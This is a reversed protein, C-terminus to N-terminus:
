NNPDSNLPSAMRRRLADSRAGPGAITTAGMTIIKGGYGGANLFFVFQGDHGDAACSSHFFRESTPRVLEGGHIRHNLRIRHDSTVRFEARPESRTPNEANVVLKDLDAQEAAVARHEGGTHTLKANVVDSVQFQEVGIIVVPQPL